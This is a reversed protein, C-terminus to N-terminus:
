RSGFDSRRRRRRGPGAPTETSSDVDTDVQEKRVEGSVTEDHTSTEKTLRVRETPVVDKEVVPREEHLVM